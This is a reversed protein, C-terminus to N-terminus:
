SASLVQQLNQSFFNHACAVMPKPMAMLGSVEYPKGFGFVSTNLRMPQLLREFHKDLGLTVMLFDGDFDCNSAKVALIPERVGRFLPDKVFRTIRRLQLSGSLLSPNRNVTAPLGTKSEEILEDLFESIMPDYAAVHRFLHDLSANHSMGAPFKNSRRRMMKGLLAQRYSVVGCCWPAHIEDYAHPETISTAVVRFAWNMRTGAIHKRALGPKPAINDDINTYHHEALKCMFSSTRSELGRLHTQTDIGQMLAMAERIDRIPKDVFVGLENQEIVLTAKNPLCLHKVLVRNPNQEIVKVLLLLAERVNRYFKLHALKTVIKPLNNCFANYGMRHIGENAAAGVVLPVKVKSRYNVNTLYSVMCFGSKTLLRVLAAWVQPIVLYDVGRPARVWLFSELPDMVRNTVLTHCLNCTTPVAFYGETKGCACTPKVTLREGKHTTMLLSEIMQRQSVDAVDVDNLIIRNQSNDFIEDYNPWQLYMTM